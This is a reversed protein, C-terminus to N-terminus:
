HTSYHTSRLALLINGADPNMSSIAFQLGPVMHSLSSVHNDFINYPSHADRKFLTGIKTIPINIWVRLM